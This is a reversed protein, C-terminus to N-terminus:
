LERPVVFHASKGRHWGVASWDDIEFDAVLTAGTPYAMFQPHDPPATVIADACMGIGPNHGLVLVTDGQARQLQVLIEDMSALYLKRAFSTEIGEPLALLTLTERTRTASSCLVEDPILGEQRLWDGLAHASSRGRANLSRDHDNLSAGSWDSKAHRMLILRKM